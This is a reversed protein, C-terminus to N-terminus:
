FVGGPVVHPVTGSDLYESLKYRGSEWDKEANSDIELLNSVHTEGKHKYVVWVEKPTAIDLLVPSHTTVIVNKNESISRLTNILVKIIWPHVSNVPEEVLLLSARPDISAVLIALARITGDSVDEATWPRSIGSEKFFLGLAKTHLYQVGIDELSPLIDKMSQMIEKWQHPSHRKLWDVVAPLNEGTMSLFPNPTPVGPSRSLERSPKYVAMQALSRSFTGFLLNTLMPFSIMLQEPPVIASDESFDRILTFPREVFSRLVNGGYTSIKVKGSTSRDVQVAAIGEKSFLEPQNGGATILIKEEIVRYESKIGGGIAQFAFKHTFQLRDIKVGGEQHRFVPSRMIRIIEAHSAEAEIEFLIASKSRREKRFAINEYGGKRAIAHELGHRYVYSLFDISDAFNSKGSANPGVLVSFGSPKFDVQRLSKYNQVFIRRLKM